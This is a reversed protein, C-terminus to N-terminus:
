STRSHPAVAGATLDSLEAARAEAARLARLVIAHLGDDNFSALAAATTGGPSTVRERLTSAPTVDSAMLQAAGIVTQRALTDATAADLGLEQGARAMLETLLFVYAPGSGSLATVADLQHEEAVWVVSGVAGLLYSAQARATEPVTDPAWLGSAGVRVQAPTNPMSRIVHVGEAVAAQLEAVRLGAAISLLSMGASLRIDALAAAAQQPKVALVLVDAGICLDDAEVCHVGFRERLEQARQPVPEFVRICAADHGAATLGGILAAAMNGGGLFSIHLQHM